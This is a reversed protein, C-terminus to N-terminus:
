KPDFLSSPKRYPTPLGKNFAVVFENDGNTLEPNITTGLDHKADSIALNALLEKYPKSERIAILKNLVEQEQEQPTIM